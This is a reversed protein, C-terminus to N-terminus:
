KKMPPATYTEGGAAAVKATLSLTRAKAGRFKFTFKIKDGPLIARKLDMLMVHLGGPQLIVTKGPKIAIGGKKESMVGSIVQHTQVMPAASTSGGFLVVTHHTNNKIKAFIGTMGGIHDSYESARVWANTITVGSDHAQVPQTTGALLVLATVGVLVTKVSAKM